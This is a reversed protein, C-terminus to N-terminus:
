DRSGAGVVITHWIGKSCRVKRRYISTWGQMNHRAPSFISWIAVANAIQDNETLVHICVIVVSCQRLVKKNRYVFYKAVSIMWEHKLKVISRGVRRTSNDCPQLLLVHMDVMWHGDWDGPRLIISCTQSKIPLSITLWAQWSFPDSELKACNRASCWPAM